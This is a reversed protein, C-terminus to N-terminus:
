SEQFINHYSKIDDLKTCFKNTFHGLNIAGPTDPFSFFLGKTKNKQFPNGLKCGLGINAACFAMYFFTFCLHIFRCAAALVASGTIDM